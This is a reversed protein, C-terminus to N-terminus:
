TFYSSFTQNPTNNNSLRAGFWSYIIGGFPILQINTKKFISIGLSTGVATGRISNTFNGTNMNASYTSYNFLTVLRANPFITYFGGGRSFYIKNLNMFGSSSLETNLNSFDPIQISFQNHIFVKKQVM